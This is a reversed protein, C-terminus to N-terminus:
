ADESLTREIPSGYATELSSIRVLRGAARHADAEALASSHDTTRGYTWRDIGRNVNATTRHDVRYRLYKTM